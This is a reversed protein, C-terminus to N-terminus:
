MLSGGFPDDGLLDGGSSISAASVAAETPNQTPAKDGTAKPSHEFSRSAPTPAHSPTTSPTTTTTTATTTAGAGTAPAEARPPSAPASSAASLSGSSPDSASPTVTLQSIDYDDTDDPEQAVGIRESFYEAFKDSTGALASARPHSRAPVPPPQALQFDKFASNNAGRRAQAGAQIAAPLPQPRATTPPMAAYPAVVFPSTVAAAVPWSAQQPAVWGAPYMVVPGMTGWAAAPTTPLSYALGGLPAMKNPPPPPLQQNTSSVDGLGFLDPSIPTPPSTIDPPTTIDGFLGFQSSDLLMRDMQAELELLSSGNESAKYIPIDYVGDKLQSSPVQYISEESDPSPEFMIYQYVPDDTDDDPITQKDKSQEKDTGEQQQQQEPQQPRQKQQQQKQERERLTFILQFLNRLDMVLGEAAHATKVAYFRHDGETGCVFGFARHDSVDRAIFSVKHVPHEHQLVGCREDYIRIGSFSVSVIIRPKHQGHARAVAAMGKLKIMSDQCMRDGRAAAVLDVGIMKARYRVGDGKFRQILATDSKDQGDDDIMVFLLMLLLLMMKMMLLLIGQGRLCSHCSNRNAAYIM